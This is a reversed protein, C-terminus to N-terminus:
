RPKPSCRACESQQGYPNYRNYRQHPVSYLRRDIVQDTVRVIRGLISENRDGIAARNPGVAMYLTRFAYAFADRCKDMAYSNRSVNNTADLPDEIILLSPKHYNHQYYPQGGTATVVIQPQPHQVTTALLERKPVYRFGGAGALRLGVAQYNLILGYLELFQLLLRGLNTEKRAKENTQFFHVVMLVLSYSSLGGKFVENLDRQLLFQKIILLVKKVNPMEKIYNIVLDVSKFVQKLNFSINIRVGSWNDTMKIIPVTARDLVLIQHPHCFRQMLFYQELDVLPLYQWRGIVVLDIDSTPLYTDTSFSGFCQVMFESNVIGLTTCVMVFMMILCVFLCVACMSVVVDRWLTEIAKTIRQLVERRLRKEHETPSMYDYFMEIERHLHDMAEEATWDCAAAAAPRQSGTAASWQSNAVGNDGSRKQQRQQQQHHSHYPHRPHDPGYWPTGNHREILHRQAALDTILAPNDAEKALTAAMLAATAEQSRKKSFLDNIAASAAPSPCWHQQPSSRYQSSHNSNNRYLHQQSYNVREPPQSGNSSSSAAIPTSPLPPAMVQTRDTDAAVAIAVAAATTATTTTTTTTTASTTATIDKATCYDRWIRRWQRAGPGNHESQDWGVSPDMMDPTSQIDTHSNRVTIHSWQHSVIPQSSQSPLGFPSIIFIVTGKDVCCSYISENKMNMVVNNTLKIRIDNPGILYIHRLTQGVIGLTETLRHRLEEETLIKLYIGNHVKGDTTVFITLRTTSPIAHITNYLRIGDSVGCIQILDDRSLRRLDEA